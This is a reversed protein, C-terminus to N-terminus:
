RGKGGTKPPFPAPKGGGKGPKPMSDGGGQQAAKRRQEHQARKWDAAVVGATYGMGHRPWRSM